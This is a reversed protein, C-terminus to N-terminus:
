TGAPYTSHPPSPRTTEMMLSNGLFIAIRMWNINNKGEGRPRCQIPAARWPDCRYGGQGHQGVLTEAQDASRQRRPLRGVPAGVQRDQEDPGVGEEEGRRGDEAPAGVHDLHGVDPSHSLGSSNAAVRAIIGKQWFESGM